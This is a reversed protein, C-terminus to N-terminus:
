TWQNEGLDTPGINYVMLNIEFLIIRDWREEEEEIYKFGVEAMPVCKHM